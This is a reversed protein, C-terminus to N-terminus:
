TDAAPLACKLRRSAHIAAVGRPHLTFPRAGRPTRAGAPVPM